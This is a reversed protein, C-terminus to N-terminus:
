KFQALVKYLANVLQDVSNNPKVSDSSKGKTNVYNNNSKKGSKNGNVKVFAASTERSYTSNTNLNKTGSKGKNIWPNNARVPEEINNTQFRGSTTPHSPTKLAAAIKINEETVTKKNIKNFYACHLFDNATHGAHSLEAVACNVCGLPLNKNVLRPCHGPEHAQICQVCRYKHSCGAATHSYRQCRHCQIIRSPKMKEIKVCFNNITAIKLLNSDNADHDLTIQYIPTAKNEPNRKMYGTLFRTITANGTIGVDNLARDISTLNVSDEGHMLGRLLYAKRKQGREAFTNYEIHNADLWAKIKSKTDLDDTLIRPLSFSKLQLWRYGNGGFRAFLGNIIQTYKTKDMAALQIPSPKPGTKNTQGNLIINAWSRDTPLNIPPVPPTPNQLLPQDLNENEDDDNCDAITAEGEDMSQDMENRETTNIEATNLWAKLSKQSKSQTIDPSVIKRKISRGAVHPTLQETLKAFNTSLLDIKRNLDVIQGKLEANQSKLEAILIDKGDESQISPKPSQLTANAGENEM